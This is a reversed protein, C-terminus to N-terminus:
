TSASPSDGQEETHSPLMETTAVATGEEASQQGPDAAADISSSTSSPPKQVHVDKAGSTQGPKEVSARAMKSSADEANTTIGGQGGSKEEDGGHLGTIEAVERGQKEKSPPRLGVEVATSTSGTTGTGSTTTGSADEDHGHAHEDVQLADARDIQEPRNGEISVGGTNTTAALVEHDVGTDLAPTRGAIDDSAPRPTVLNGDDTTAAENEPGSSKSQSSAAHHHQTQQKKNSEALRDQKQKKENQPEELLLAGNHDYM